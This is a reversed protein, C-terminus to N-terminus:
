HSTAQQLGPLLYDRAVVQWSMRQSLAYGRELMAEAARDDAPLRDVIVQAVAQAQRAEIEDRRDQDIAL